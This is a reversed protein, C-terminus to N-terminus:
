TVSDVWAQTCNSQLISPWKTHASPGFSAVWHKILKGGWRFAQWGCMWYIRLPCVTCVCNSTATSITPRDKAECAQITMGSCSLYTSSKVKAIKKSCFCCIRTYYLQIPMSITDWWLLWKDLLATLWALWHQCGLWVIFFYSNLSGLRASCPGFLTKQWRSAM